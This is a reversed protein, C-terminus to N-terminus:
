IYLVTKWLDSEAYQKIIENRKVLLKKLYSTLIITNALRGLVGLPSEFIFDDTMITEGSKYEFKHTHHISKFAGKVMEDVFLVNAEYQTIKSTLKQWLGFHKARWTVTENLNILGTTVGAIAEENSQSTSIKHLNISRSLDFCREVPANIKTILKIHPM